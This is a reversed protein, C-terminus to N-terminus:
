YLHKTRGGMEHSCGGRSASRGVASRRQGWFQPSKPPFPPSLLARVSSSARPTAKGNCNDLEIPQVEEKGPTDGQMIVQPTPAVVQPSPIACGSLFLAMMILSAVYFSASCVLGDNM